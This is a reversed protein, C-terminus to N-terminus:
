KLVAQAAERLEPHMIWIAPTDQDPTPGSALLLAAGEPGSLSEDEVNIGLYDAIVEGAKCFVKMASDRSKYGAAKALQDMTMGEERAISHAKLMAVQPRTLATQHLAEVFEEKNPVSVGAAEDFRRAQERHVDRAAIKAKLAALAEQESDGEAEAFVGQAKSPPKPFARAVYTGGLRGAKIRYKEHAEEVIETVDAGGDRSLAASWRTQEVIALARASSDKQTM